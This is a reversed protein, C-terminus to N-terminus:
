SIYHISSNVQHFRSFKYSFARNSGLIISTSQGQKHALSFHIIHCDFSMLIVHNILAVNPWTIKINILLYCVEEFINENGVLAMM